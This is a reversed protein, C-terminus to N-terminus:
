RTGIVRKDKPNSILHWVKNREFQNLEKKMAVIWYADELAEKINRPEVMSIYAIFAIINRFM